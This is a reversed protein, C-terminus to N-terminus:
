ERKALLPRNAALKSALLARARHLRSRVTGVPCEMIRAAERYDLEELDCLVVAERYVAPLAQVAERVADVVQSRAMAEFPSDDAVAGAIADDGAPEVLEIGHRALRKVIHHRAIGFLYGALTGKSPDFAGRSRLVALFTEQVVDDGADAGCMRVAYRYVPRQYRAFLTSFAQEDGNQARRILGAEDM